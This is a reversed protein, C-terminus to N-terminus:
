EGKILPVIGKYYGTVVKNDTTTLTFTVTYETGSVEVKVMGGNIEHETGGETEIDYDILFEADVIKNPGRQESWTFTGEQFSTISASNLDLYILDGKGSLESDGVGLSIGSSFLTLDYDRSDNVVDTYETLAGASMEYSIGDFVVENKISPGEDDKGCSMQFVIALLLVSKLIKKM